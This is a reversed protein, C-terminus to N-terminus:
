RHRYHFLKISAIIISYLLGSHCWLPLIRTHPGSPSPPRRSLPVQWAKFLLVSFTWSVQQLFTYAILLFLENIHMLERYHTLDLSLPSAKPTCMHLSAISNSNWQLLTALMPSVSAVNRQESKATQFYDLACVSRLKMRESWPCTM